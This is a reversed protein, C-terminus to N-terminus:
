NFHAIIGKEVHWIDKGRTADPLNERIWKSIQMHFTFLGNYFFVRQSRPTCASKRGVMNIELRFVQVCGATPISGVDAM